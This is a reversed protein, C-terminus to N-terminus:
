KRLTRTTTTQRAHEEDVAGNRFRLNVAQQLSRRNPRRQVLAVEGHAALVCLTAVPHAAKGGVARM